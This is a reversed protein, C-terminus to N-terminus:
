PLLRDILAALEGPRELHIAHGAEEVIDVRLHPSRRAAERAIGLYKRDLSGVAMSLGSSLRDLDPWLSPNSGPSADVLLPAWAEASGAQRRRAIMGFDPHEKLSAFLPQAYWRELFAALGERLLAEGLTRDANARAAREEPHELGPTASVAIARRFVEPHRSAMTMTVRGGLSYGVVHLPAMASRLVEAAIADALSALSPREVGHLLLNARLIRRPVALSAVVADWDAPEGLFGHIFLVPAADERSPRPDEVIV